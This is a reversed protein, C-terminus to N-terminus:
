KLHENMKHSQYLYFVILQLQLSNLLHDQFTNRFFIHEYEENKGFMIKKNLHNPHISFARLGNSFFLVNGIDDFSLVDDKDVIVGLYFDM